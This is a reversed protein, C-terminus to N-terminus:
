KLKFKIPLNCQVRVPNGHNIGPKWKPMLKIVRMAEQECGDGIGKLLKVDTISGDKEVVFTLHVTGQTGAEKAMQPYNLNESIFKAMDPMDPMQDVFFEVKNTNEVPKITPVVIEKKYSASDKGDTPNKSLNMQDTTKDLTNKKDDSATLHGSETKLPVIEKPKEIEKPKVEPPTLDVLMETIMIEPVLNGNDLSSIKVDKNSFWYAGFAILAFFGFSGLMALTLSDSQSKRIAYAGYTKNRNEFILDNLKESNNFNLNM